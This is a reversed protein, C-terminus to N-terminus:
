GAFPRGSVALRDAVRDAIFSTDEDVGFIIGSKRTWLWPFGAFFVGPVEAVGREHIPAGSVGLVPMGLYRLDGGFGTAWIVAAVGAAGLDLESPSHVSLPDPHPRDAPDDELPPMALGSANVVGELAANYDASKRDGFAINAGVTDDLSLRDGDMATPRGLLIAGREALAQISVTHGFRGVGSTTWLTQFRVRPDPLRDLPVDYFWGADVLWELADRGRYRRRIRAVASTSLFVTRGATLLDEAIQVGSQGSGVILVAGTPRDDPQRYSGSHLQAITDPFSRAIGPIRPVRLLGSAAVVNRTEYDITARGDDVTVAFTGERSPGSVAVVTVGARVPVQRTAAYARLRAVYADRGMFADFPEVVEAEGPLRNMWNPTDLVFSDWRQTLWTEAVQGREIVVHDIGRRALHYSAGLGARGAGVVLADLTRGDHTM